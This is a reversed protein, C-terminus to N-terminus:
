RISCRDESGLTTPEFGELRAGSDDEKALMKGEKTLTGLHASLRHEGDVYWRFQLYNTLIINTLSSLYREFREGDPGKGQEIDDLHRGIDKAEVYYLSSVTQWTAISLVKTACRERIQVSFM